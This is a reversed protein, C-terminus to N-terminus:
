AAFYLTKWEATEPNNMNASIASQRGERLGLDAVTVRRFRWESELFWNTGNSVKPEYFMLGRDSDCVGLGYKAQIEKIFGLNYQLKSFDVTIRDEEVKVMPNETGEFAEKMLKFNKAACPRDWINEGNAGYKLRGLNDIIGKSDGGAVRWYYALEIAVEATIKPLGVFIELKNNM